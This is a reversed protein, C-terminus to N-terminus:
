PKRGPIRRPLALVLILSVLVFAINALLALQASHSFAAAVANPESRVHLTGFLVTGIVAVGIASGARQATGLIASATGADQRPVRALVFDQNPAIVMGSGLGALLLPGLLYWGGPLPATLHIALAALGLGTGVMACGTVLVMRGMKASLKDSVAASVLSGFSFPV